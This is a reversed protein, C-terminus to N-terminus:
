LAGSYRNLGTGNKRKSRGVPAGTASRVWRGTRDLTPMTESMLKSYRTEGDVTLVGDQVDIHAVTAWFSNRSNGVFVLIEDSDADPLGDKDPKGYRIAVRPKGFKDIAGLGNDVSQYVNVLLDGNEKPLVTVREVAPQNGKGPGLSDGHHYIFPWKKLSGTHGKEGSVVVYRHKIEDRCFFYVDLDGTGYNKVRGDRHYTARRGDWELGVTLVWDSGGKRLDIAATKDASDKTISVKVKSMNIASAAVPSPAPRPASVPVSSPPQPHAPTPTPAPPHGPEDVTIGFDTAFDALGASYGQGIADLKWEGNRRYFAVLQVVTETGLGEPIFTLPSSSSIHVVLQGLQGFTKQQTETSAAIVVRHVDAPIATLDVTCSGQSQLQVGPASPNNFFVLDNDSRVKHNATLLVAILDVDSRFRSHVEISYATPSLATKSGKILQTM